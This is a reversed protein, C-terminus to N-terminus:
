PLATPASGLLALAESRVTELKAHAIAARAQVLVAPDGDSWERLASAAAAANEPHGHLELALYETLRALERAEDQRAQPGNVAAHVAEATDFGRENAEAATLQLAM